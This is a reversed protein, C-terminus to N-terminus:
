LGHAALALGRDAAVLLEVHAAARGHRDAAIVGLLGLEGARDLGAVLDGDLLVAVDRHLALIERDARGPLDLDLGRRLHVDLRLGRERDLRAPRGLDLRGPRDRHLARDDVDVSACARRRSSWWAVPPARAPCRRPPGCAPM